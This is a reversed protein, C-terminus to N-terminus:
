GKRFFAAGVVGPGTHAGIVGCLLTAPPDAGRDLLLSPADALFLRLNEDSLGSYGLLLPMAPDIGGAHAIKETLLRLGQRLGRARGVLRVEGEEITIVPKINLLGGAFAVAPPIRGGRRLFELTDLVAFLRVDRRKETLAAAIDGASMGRDACRLGYEALVGAAVAATLSDVVHVNPFAEAAICASQYTGSLKSAITVAVAGDGRAAAEAFAAEFAAPSAQSTTPLVPSAALRRYFGARDIDVGDVLAEDGFHVTLPVTRFRHRLAEPVDVTSDIIIQTRM